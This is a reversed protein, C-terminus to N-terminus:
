SFWDIPPRDSFYWDVAWALSAWIPITVAVVFFSFIDDLRALVFVYAVNVAVIVVAAIAKQKETMVYM